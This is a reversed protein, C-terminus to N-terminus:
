CLMMNPVLITLLYTHRSNQGNVSVVDNLIRHRGYNGKYDCVPVEVAERGKALVRQLIAPEFSSNVTFLLIQGGLVSMSTFPVDDRDGEEPDEDDSLEVIPQLANYGVSNATRWIGDARPNDVEFLSAATPRREVNSPCFGDRSRALKEGQLISNIM